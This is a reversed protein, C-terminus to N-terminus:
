ANTALSIIKGFIGLEGCCTGAANKAAIVGRSLTIALLPVGAPLFLLSLHFDCIVFTKNM